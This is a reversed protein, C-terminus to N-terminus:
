NNAEKFNYFLVFFWVCCWGASGVTCSLRLFFFFHMPVVCWEMWFIYLYNVRRASKKKKRLSKKEQHSSKILINGNRNCKAVPIRVDFFECKGSLKEAFVIKWFNEFRLTFSPFGNSFIYIYHTSITTVLTLVWFFFRCTFAGFRQNRNISFSQNWLKACCVASRSCNHNNTTTNPKRNPTFNSANQQITKKGQLSKKHKRRAFNAIFIERVCHVIHSLTSSKQLSEHEVSFKNDTPRTAPSKTAPQRRSPSMNGSFMIIITSTALKLKLTKWGKACLLLSIADIIIITKNEEQVEEEEKTIIYRRTTTM